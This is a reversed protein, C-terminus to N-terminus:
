SARCTERPEILNPLSYELLGKRRHKLTNRYVLCITFEIAGVKRTLAPFMVTFPESVKTM